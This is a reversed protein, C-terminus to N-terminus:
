LYMCGNKAHEKAPLCHLIHDRGATTTYRLWLLGSRNKTRVGFQGGQTPTGGRNDLGKQESLQNHWTTVEMDKHDRDM